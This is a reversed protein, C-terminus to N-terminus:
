DINFWISDLLLISLFIIIIITFLTTDIIAKFATLLFVALAELVVMGCISQLILLFRKKRNSAVILICKISFIIAAFICFLIFTVFLNLHTSVNYWLFLIPIISLIAVIVIIKKISKM